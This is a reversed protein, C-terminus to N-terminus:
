PRATMDGLVSLQTRRAFAPANIGACPARVRFRLLGGSSPVANSERCMSRGCYPSVTTNRMVAPDQGSKSAAARSQHLVGACSESKVSSVVCFRRSRSISLKRAAAKIEANPPSAYGGSSSTAILLLASAFREVFTSARGERRSLGGATRPVRSSRLSTPGVHSQM